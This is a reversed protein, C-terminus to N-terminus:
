ILKLTFCQSLVNSQKGRRSELVMVFSNNCLPINTIHNAESQIQLYHPVTCMQMRIEVTATFGCLGSDMFDREFKWKGIDDAESCCVSFCASVGVGIKTDSLLDPSLNIHVFTLAGSKKDQCLM